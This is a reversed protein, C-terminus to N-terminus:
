NLTASDLIKVSGILSSGVSSFAEVNSLGAAHQLGLDALPVSFVVREGTTGYGGSLDSIKACSSVGGLSCDFLTIGKALGSTRVEYSGEGIRFRMGYVLSSLPGSPLVGSRSGLALSEVEIVGFLDGLEERPILSASRLDSAALPADGVRDRGQVGGIGLPPGMDTLFTRFHANEPEYPMLDTNCTTYLVDQGGNGFNPRIPGNWGGHGEGRCSEDSAKGEHDLTAISLSGRSRDYVFANMAGRSDSLNASPADFTVFRGDASINAFATEAGLAPFSTAETGESTINVRETRDMKRDHVFVDSNPQVPNYSNTDAPVLNPYDAVFVVYRGDASIASRSLNVGWGTYTHVGPYIQPAYGESGDSAVSVRETTEKERDRVFVDGGTLLARRNTDGEVLNSTQSAFAVFRGDQNISVHATGGDLGPLGEKSVSILENIGEQMDRVFVDRQVDEDEQVLALADSVFAVYRGNGSITVEGM